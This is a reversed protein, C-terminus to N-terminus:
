PTRRTGTWLCSSRRVSLASDKSWRCLRRLCSWALPAGCGQIRIRWRAPSPRMQRNRLAAVDCSPGLVPCRQGQDYRHGRGCAARQSGRLPLAGPGEKRRLPGRHAPGVMIVASHKGANEPYQARGCGPPLHWGVEACGVGRGHAAAEPTALTHPLTDDIGEARVSRRRLSPEGGILFVIQSQLPAGRRQVKHSHCPQGDHRRRAMFPPLVVARHM